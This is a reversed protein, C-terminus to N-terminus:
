TVSKSRGFKAKITYSIGPIGFALFFLVANIFSPESRNNSTISGMNIQSWMYWGSLIFLMSGITSGIIQHTKGKTISAICILLCFGGFTYFYVAKDTPPAVLLMVIGFSGSFFALIYRALPSLGKNIAQEAARYM